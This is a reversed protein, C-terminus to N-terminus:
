HVMIQYQQLSFVKGQLIHYLNQILPIPPLSLGFIKIKKYNYVPQEKYFNLLKINNITHTEIKM